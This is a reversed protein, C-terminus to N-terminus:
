RAQAIARAMDAVSRASEVQQRLLTKQRDDRESERIVQDVLGKAENLSLTRRNSVNFRVLLPTSLTLWGLSLLVAYSLAPARLTQRSPVGKVTIGDISSLTLAADLMQAGHIRSTMLWQLPLVFEGPAVEIMRILQMTSGRARLVLLVYDNAGV